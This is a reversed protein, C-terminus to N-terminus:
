LKASSFAKRSYQRRMKDDVQNLYFAGEPLTDLSESPTYAGCDHKQERGKLTLVFQDPSIKTRKSLRNLMDIEKVIPSISSCVRFSFLSAALGSGYSFLGVRKGVLSDGALSLLSCLGVYLSGCYANGVNKPLVTSQEVKSNYTNKSFAALAKEMDVNSYSKPGTGLEKFSRVPSYKAEDAHVLMDNYVMRALSKQVLKNYPAHFVVSDLEEVTFVKGEKKEFKSRYQSYCNDVARLYCDVSLKGDVVPYESNLNPKYFDYVNEMHTGRLGTDFVIPANPGILMAVAACGGTPRANGEAYIAIDGAVVLAFRGDWYSSEIWQISNFLASTGGYCANINDVGELSMNGAAKFLDMLTTKVSKSKDIITETGVELRGISRPDIAYKDMLGQVASLCISNIDERDGVFSMNTQGLGVTYKGAPAKDFAELETQNVYRQPFYVDIAVIGVNKPPPTTM